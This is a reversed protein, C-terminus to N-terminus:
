DSCGLTWFVKEINPKGGVQDIETKLIEAKDYM